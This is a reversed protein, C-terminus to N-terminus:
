LLVKEFRFNLDECCSEGEGGGGVSFDRDDTTVGGVRVRLRVNKGKLSEAGVEAASGEVSAVAGHRSAVAGDVSGEIGDGARVVDSLVLARLLLLSTSPHSMGAVVRVGEDVVDSDDSEGAGEGDVVVNNRVSEGVEFRALPHVGASLDSDASPAVSGHDPGVHGVGELADLDWDDVVVGAVGSLVVVASNEWYAM